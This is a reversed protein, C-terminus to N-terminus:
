TTNTKNTFREETPKHKSFLKSIITVVNIRQRSPPVERALHENTSKLWM